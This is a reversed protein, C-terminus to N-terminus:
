ARLRREATQGAPPREEDVEAPPPFPLRRAENGRGDRYILQRAAFDYEPHRSDAWHNLFHVYFVPFLGQAPKNRNLEFVYEPQNRLEQGDHCYQVWVYDGTVILNWFPPEDYFKLTVKKGATSLGALREVTAETERRYTEPLGEPSGLSQVRRLAGPGFPNLLVVRLEYCADIVQRLSRMESVFTDFGTVSMVSVDRTGTMRQLLKRNTGLSSPSDEQRVHVLSVLGNMRHGLRAERASLLMNLVLVLVAAFIIENVMLLQSDRAVMPWWSFLIYNALVPLWFAIGVALLTVAAHGVIHRLTNSFRDPDINREM